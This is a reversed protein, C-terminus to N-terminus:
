SIKFEACQRRHLTKDFVLHIDRDKFDPQAAPQIRHIYEVRITRHHRAHVDVMGVIQAIRALLDSVFLCADESFATHRDTRIRFHRQRHRFVSFFDTRLKPPYPPLKTKM